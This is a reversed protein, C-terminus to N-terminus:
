WTSLSTNIHELLYVIDQVAAVIVVQNLKLYDITMRRTGDTKKVPWIPSDFSSTNPVVAEADKKDKITARIEEMKGPYLVTKLGNTEKASAVRITELKAKGVM